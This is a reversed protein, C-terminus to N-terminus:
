LSNLAAKIEAFGDWIAQFKWGRSILYDTLIRRNLKAEDKISYYLDYPTEFVLKIIEQANGSLSKLMDQFVVSREIDPTYSDLGNCDIEDNVDIRKRKKLVQMRNSLCKWLYTSFAAQDPDYSILAKVYELNGEALLEDYHDASYSYNWAFMTIMKKYDHYNIESM